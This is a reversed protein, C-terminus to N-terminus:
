SNEENKESNNQDIPQALDCTGRVAVVMEVLTCELRRSVARIASNRCESCRTEGPKSKNRYKRPQM